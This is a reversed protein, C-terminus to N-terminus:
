NRRPVRHAGGALIPLPPLPSSVPSSHQFTRSPPRCCALHLPGLRAPCPMSGLACSAGGWVGLRSVFYGASGKQKGGCLMTAGERQGIDIYALIKRLQDAPRPPRPPSTRDPCPLPSRLHRVYSRLFLM